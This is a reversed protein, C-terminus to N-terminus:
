RKSALVFSESQRVQVGGEQKWGMKVKGFEGEGLTNGLYYEGFKTNKERKSATAANDHRSRSGGRGIDDLDESGLGSIAKSASTAAPPHAEAMRERERERELDVEPKSIVVRNLIESGERSLGNPTSSQAGSKAQSRVAVTAPQNSRAERNSSSRQPQSAQPSQQARRRSRSAAAAADDNAAGKEIGNTQRNIREQSGDGSPGSRSTSQRGDLTQDIRRSRDASSSATITPGSRQNSSTRPPAVPPVGRQYEVPATAPYMSPASDVAATSSGQGSSHSPRSSKPASLPGGTNPSHYNQQQELNSTAGNGSPRRAHRRTTSSTASPPSANQQNYYPDRSQPSQSTYHRSAPSTAPSLSPGTSPPHLAAQLAASSM